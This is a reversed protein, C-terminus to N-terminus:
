GPLHEFKERGTFYFYTGVLLTVVAGLGISFQASVKEALFGALLNGIPMMGVFMTLYVAMVRGRMQAPTILQVLTNQASSLTIIGFGAMFLFFHALAFNNFLAFGLLSLTGLLIGGFILKVRSIKELYASTFVAGFLSGLGAAALLSGLGQPGAQFTVESIVPMLTQYPWIFIGMSSALIM